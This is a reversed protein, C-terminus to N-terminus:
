KLVLLFKWTNINIENEETIITFNKIKTNLEQIKNNYNNELKNKEEQAKEKFNILKKRYSRWNKIKWKAFRTGTTGFNSELDVM